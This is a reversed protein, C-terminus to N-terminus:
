KETCMKHEESSLHEVLHALPVVADCDRCLMVVHVPKSHPGQPCFGQNEDEGGFWILGCQRCHFFGSEKAYKRLHEPTFPELTPM